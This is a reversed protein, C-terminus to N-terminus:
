KTQSSPLDIIHRFIYAVSLNNYEGEHQYNSLYINKKELQKVINKKKINSLQM